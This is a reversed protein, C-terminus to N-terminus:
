SFKIGNIQVNMWMIWIVALVSLPVTLNDWGNMSVLEAVTAVSAIILVPYLDNLTFTITWNDTYIMVGLILLVASVFFFLSGILTKKGGFFAPGYKGWKKGSWEAITDSFTLLLVPLYFGIHTDRPELDVAFCIYVPIPFIVSGVSKRKTKHIGPLDKRIWTILLTLFAISCLGLVYWHSDIFYPLFLSLIGGSVHVFKRSKETDVSAKYMFQAAVIIALFLLLFIASALLQPNM